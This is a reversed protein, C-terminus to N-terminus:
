VGDVEDPGLGDKRSLRWKGGNELNEDLGETRKNKLSVGNGSEIEVERESTGPSDPESNEGGTEDFEGDGGSLEWSFMYCDQTVTYARCVINTM